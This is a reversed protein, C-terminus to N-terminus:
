ITRTLKQPIAWVTWSISTGGYEKDWGKQFTMDFVNVAKAHLEKDGTANARESRMRQRDM